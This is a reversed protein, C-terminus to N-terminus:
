SHATAVGADFLIHCGAPGQYCHTHTWKCAAAVAAAVAVTLAAAVALAATVADPPLEEAAADADAAVAADTLAAVAAAVLVLVDTLLAAPTPQILKENYTCDSHQATIAHSVV